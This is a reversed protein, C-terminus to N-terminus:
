SPPAPLPRILPDLLKRAAAPTLVDAPDLKIIQASSPEVEWVNEGVLRGREDYPWLMLQRSRHLYTAGLDDVVHGLAALAVGPHQQYAIVNSAILQDGVALQEDEAYFICEATHTWLAYLNRVATRGRLTLPIRGTYFHYEPEEVIMEPAFIEEYRGAIELFRHRHFSELLYRHRPDDTRQLLEDIARNTQTVDLDIM